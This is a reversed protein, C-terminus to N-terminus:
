GRLVRRRVGKLKQLNERELENLRERQHRRVDDDLSDRLDELSIAPQALVRLLLEEFSEGLRAVTPADFIDTAYDLEGALGAPTESISLELDHRIAQTELTIESVSLGALAPPPGEAIQLVFWVQFLPNHSLSRELKLADVLRELPVEQHAYAGLATERVRSLLERFTPNGRLDTRLVITNIFFGILGETEVQNRGFIPSGVVIEEQGTQRWLLVAFAALLTMYLTVGENRSLAAIREAVSTPLTFRQRAGRSGRLAPRPRDGRLDLISPAGHLKETWYSLQKELVAGQFWDREWVAYDAYQLAISHFRRLSEELFHETSFRWSTSFCAWRGVM